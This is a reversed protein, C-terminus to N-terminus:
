RSARRDAPRSRRRGADRPHEARAHRARHAARAGDLALPPAPPVAHQRGPHSPGRPAVFRAPRRPHPAPSPDPRETACPRRAGSRVRAAAGVPAPVRRRRVPRRLRAPLDVRREGAEPRADRVRRTRREARRAPRRALPREGALRDLIAPTEDTSADDVVIVEVTEFLPVVERELDRVLTEISGSENYVPVM